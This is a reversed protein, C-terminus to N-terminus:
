HLYVKFNNEITIIININNSLSEHIRCTMRTTITYVYM